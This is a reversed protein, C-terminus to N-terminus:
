QPLIYLLIYDTYGYLM